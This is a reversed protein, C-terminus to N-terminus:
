WYLMHMLNSKGGELFIRTMEHISPYGKPKDQYWMLRCSNEYSFIWRNHPKSCLYKELAKGNMSEMHFRAPLLISANPHVHTALIHGFLMTRTHMVSKQYDKGDHWGFVEVLFMPKERVDPKFWHTCETNKCTLVDSSNISSIRCWRVQIFGQWYHSIRWVLQHLIKEM